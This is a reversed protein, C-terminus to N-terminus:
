VKKDLMTVLHFIVGFNDNVRFHTTCSKIGLGIYKRMNTAVLAAWFFITNSIIEFFCISTDIKKQRSNHM